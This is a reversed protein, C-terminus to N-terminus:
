VKRRKDAGIRSYYSDKDAYMKQEAEQVLMNIDAPAPASTFGAAIHYGAREVSSRLQDTMAALRSPDLGTGVAVFEDGGIRYTDFRGFVGQMSAAVFQLMRDGAAHGKTDNLAHLGNVDVYVCYVSGTKEENLEILRQEYSTRNRLATLQDTEAMHRVRGILSSREAKVCSFYTSVIASICSFVIGNIIDTEWTHPAKVKLALVIFVATSSFIPFYLRIPRDTFLLPITLLFAIYSAAVEDPAGVTSIFVGVFLMILIFLHTLALIDRSRNKPILHSAVFIGLMLLTGGIYYVRKAVLIDLFFSAITMILLFVGAIGSFVRLSSRNGENIEGFLQRYESDDLGANMIVKRVTRLLGM